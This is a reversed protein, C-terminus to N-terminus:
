LYIFEGNLIAAVVQNNNKLLGSPLQKKRYFEAPDHHGAASVVPWASSPNLLSIDGSFRCYGKGLIARYESENLDRRQGVEFTKGRDFYVGTADFTQIGGYGSLDGIQQILNGNLEADYRLGVDVVYDQGFAKVLLNQILLDFLGNDRNEPLERYYNDIGQWRLHKGNAIAFMSELLMVFNMKRAFQRTPDGVTYGSELLVTAVGQSCCFDGFTKNSFGDVYKAVRGDLQPKFVQLWHGILQMAALRHPPESEAQDAPPAMFAISVANGTDASSYYRSQDHLNFGFDPSLEQILSKLIKAEPSQLASADRNIDIGQHNERTNAQAGDPNLMPVMHVTIRALVQQLWGQQRQICLFHLIDLLAATATSEDGHMQSWYLLQTQGHGFSVSQIPKGLVSEGVLRINLFPCHFQEIQELCRHLDKPEIQSKDLCPLQCDQHLRLLEDASPCVISM